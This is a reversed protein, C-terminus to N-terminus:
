TVKTPNRIGEGLIIKKQLPHKFLGGIAQIIPVVGWYWLV